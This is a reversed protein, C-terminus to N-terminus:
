ARKAQWEEPNNLFLEVENLTKEDFYNETKAVHLVDHWTALTHLKVGTDDWTKQAQPFIGYYFVVFVHDVVAGAERLANIFNIKSGGDTALDEVLLVNQGNEEMHGEIQAMRGFGKPKKRVYLMPLDLRDALWAGYPIGATEGGAILDLDPCEEKILATAHNIVATREKPFAILKRCDIYVPSKKGSTLTFPEDANFLVARIDLLAKATDYAIKQTDIM